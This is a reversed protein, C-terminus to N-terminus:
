RLVDHAVDGIAVVAASVEGPVDSAIDSIAARVVSVQGLVDSAVDSTAAGQWVFSGCSM